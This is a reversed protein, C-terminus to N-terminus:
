DGAAKKSNLAQIKRLLTESVDQNEDPPPQYSHSDSALGTILDALDQDMNEIVHGLTALAYELRHM